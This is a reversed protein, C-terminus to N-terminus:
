RGELYKSLFFTIIIFIIVPLPTDTSRRDWPDINQNQRRRNRLMSALAISTAPHTM